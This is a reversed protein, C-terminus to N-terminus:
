TIRSIYTKLTGSFRSELANLAGMVIIVREGTAAVVLGKDFGEERSKWHIYPKLKLM